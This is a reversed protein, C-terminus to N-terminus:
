SVRTTFASVRILPADVGWTGPMKAKRRASFENPMVNSGAEMGDNQSRQQSHLHM